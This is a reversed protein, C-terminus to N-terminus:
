GQVLRKNTTFTGTFSACCYELTQALPHYSLGTKQISHSADYRVRSFSNRMSQRTLTRERGAVAAMVNEGAVAFPIMWPKAEIRPAKRGLKAAIQQFLDRYSTTGGNAIFRQGPFDQRIVRVVLEAVDRVDVYNVWGETYFPREQWVYHFVQGSSRPTPAPALILSPNILSVFLGEEQGRYVELEALYKSNAYDSSFERDQLFTRESITEVGRPKPLAAVSSIHIFKKVGSRLAADVANRTGSVNTNIIEQKARPDYSVRAAAHIVVSCGDFADLLALPDMVNAEVVEGTFDALSSAKRVIARVPHEEQLRHILHSGLLGNAGTVAIM